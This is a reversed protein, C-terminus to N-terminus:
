ITPCGTCYFKLLLFKRDVRDFARSFENYIIDPKNGVSSGNYVHCILQLVNTMVSGSLIMNLSQYCLCWHRDCDIPQFNDLHTLHLLWNLLGEEIKSMIRHTSRWEQTHSNFPVREVTWSLIRKLSVLQIFTYFYSLLLTYLVVVVNRSAQYYRCWAM